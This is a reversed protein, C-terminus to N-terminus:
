FHYILGDIEFCGKLCFQPWLKKVIYDEDLKLANKVNNIFSFKDMFIVM